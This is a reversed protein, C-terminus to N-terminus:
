FLATETDLFTLIGSNLIKFAKVPLIKHVNKEWRFIKILCIQSQHAPYKGSYKLNWNSFIRLKEGDARGGERRDSESEGPKYNNSERHGTRTLPVTVTRVGMSTMLFM